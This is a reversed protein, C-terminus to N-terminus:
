AAQRQGSTELFEILQALVHRLSQEQEDLRAEIRALREDVADSGQGTEGAFSARTEGIERRLQDLERDRDAFAREIAVIQAEALGDSGAQEPAKRDAEARRAQAIAQSAPLSPDPAVADDVTVDEAASDGEM